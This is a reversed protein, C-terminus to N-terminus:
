QRGRGAGRRRRGVGLEHQWVQERFGIRPAPLTRYGVEQAEIPEGAHAAWVVDTIPALYRSGEDLLPHGVNVHYFFM